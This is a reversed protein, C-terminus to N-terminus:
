INILAYCYTLTPTFGMKKYYQIAHQHSHYVSLSLHHIGEDSLKAFLSQALLTSIGQKREEVKTVWNGLSAMGLKKNILNTGAIGVLCENKFYGFYYGQELMWAEFWHGPYASDYLEMMKNLHEMGLPLIPGEPFIIDKIGLYMQLYNGYDKKYYKSFFPHFNSSTYIYFEGQIQAIVWKLFDIILPEDSNNLFYIHRNKASLTVLALATVKNNISLSFWENSDKFLIGKGAYIYFQAALNEELFVNIEEESPGQIYQVSNNM